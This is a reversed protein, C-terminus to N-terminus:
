GTNSTKPKITTPALIQSALWDFWSGAETATDVLEDSSDLECTALASEEELSAALEAVELLWATRPTFLGSRLPGDAGSVLNSSSNPLVM